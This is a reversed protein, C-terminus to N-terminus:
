GRWAPGSIGSALARFQCQLPASAKLAIRLIHASKRAPVTRRSRRERGWNLASSVATGVHRRPGRAAQVSWIRRALMLNQQFVHRKRTVQIQLQGFHELHNQSSEISTNSFTGVLVGPFRQEGRGHRFRQAYRPKACAIRSGLSIRRACPAHLLVQVGDGLDDPFTWGGCVPHWSGRQQLQAPQLWSRRRRV